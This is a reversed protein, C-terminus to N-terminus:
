TSSYIGATPAEWFATINLYYAIKTPRGWRKRQRKEAGTTGVTTPTLNGGDDCGSRLRVEADVARPSLNTERPWCGGHWAGPGQRGGHLLRRPGAVAAQRSSKRGPFAIDPIPVGVGRNNISRVSIKEFNRDRFFLLGGPSPVGLFFKLGFIWGPRGKRPRNLCKM